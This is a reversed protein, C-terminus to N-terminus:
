SSFTMYGTAKVQIKVDYPSELKPLPREEISVDKVRQLVFALNKEKQPMETSLASAFQSISFGTSDRKQPSAIPLSM